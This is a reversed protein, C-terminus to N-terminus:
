RVFVLENEKSLKKSYVYGQEAFKVLDEPTDVQNKIMWNAMMGRAYKTYITVQKLKGDKEEMFVVNIVRKSTKEITQFYEQSALNVIIEEDEREVVELIKDKWQKHVLQMELRYPQMLDLPKLIGYLGSLIRLHRQAFDIEKQNYLDAEMFKYVDGKYTFLAQSASKKKHPLKMVAFMEKVQTAIKKSVKMEKQLDEVSRKQYFRVLEKAKKEFVVNTFKEYERPSSSM